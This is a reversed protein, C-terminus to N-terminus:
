NNITPTSNAPWVMPLTFQSSGNLGVSLNTVVTSANVLVADNGYRYDIDGLVSTYITLASAQSCTTDIYAYPPPNTGFTRTSYNGFPFNAVPVSYYLLDGADKFEWRSAASVYEAYTAYLGGAADYRTATTYEYGQNFSADGAGVLTFTSRNAPEVNWIEIRFNKKILQGTYLPCDFLFAEGVNQWLKYRYVNYDGDVWMVTAIYNPNVLEAFSKLSLNKLSAYNFVAVIESYGKFQTNVSFAPLTIYSRTRTLVPVPNVDLWRQLQRPNTLAGAENSPPPAVPQPM